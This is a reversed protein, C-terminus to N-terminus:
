RREAEANKLCACNETSTMRMAKGSSFTMAKMSFSPNLVTLAYDLKPSRLRDEGASPSVRVTVLIVLLIVVLLIVIVAVSVLGVNFVM